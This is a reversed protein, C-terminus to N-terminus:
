GMKTINRINDGFITGGFNRALQPIFVIGRGDRSKIFGASFAYAEM